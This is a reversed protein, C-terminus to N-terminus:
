DGSAEMAFAQPVAAMHRQPIMEEGVRKCDKVQWAVQIRTVMKTLGQINTTWVQLAL